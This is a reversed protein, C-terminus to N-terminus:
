LEPLPTVIRSLICYYCVSLCCITFWLSMIAFSQQIGWHRRLLTILELSAYQLCNTPSTLLSPSVRNYQLIQRPVVWWQWYSTVYCRTLAEPLRNLDGGHFFSLMPSSPCFGLRIDSKRALLTYIHVTQQQNKDTHMIQKLKTRENNHIGASNQQPYTDPGGDQLRSSLLWRLVNANERKFTEGIAKYISPKIRQYYVNLGGKDNHWNFWGVLIELSCQLTIM